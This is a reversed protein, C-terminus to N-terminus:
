NGFRFYHPTLIFWSTEPIQNSLIIVHQHKWRREHTKFKDRAFIFIENPAPWMDLSGMYIVSRATVKEWARMRERARVIESMRQKWLELCTSQLVCYFIPFCVAHLVIYMAMDFNTYIINKLISFKEYVNVEYMWGALICMSRQLTSKIESAYVCMCICICICTLVVSRSEWEEQRLLSCM